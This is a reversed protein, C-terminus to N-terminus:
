IKRNLVGGPCYGFVMKGISILCTVYEHCLILALRVWVCGCGPIRSLM